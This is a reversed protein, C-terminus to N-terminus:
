RTGRHWLVLAGALNVIDSAVSADFRVLNTGVRRTLSAIDSNSRLQKLIAEPVYYPAKSLKASLLTTHHALIQLFCVERKM